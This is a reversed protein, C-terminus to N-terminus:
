RPQRPYDTLRRYQSSSGNDISVFLDNLDTSSDAISAPFVALTEHVSAEDSQSKLDALLSKRCLRLLKTVRDGSIGCMRLGTAALMRFDLWANAEKIYQLDLLQKRRADDLTEDPPLNIQALGTIGPKISLRDYYGDIEEALREAIQPREPRPGVLVMEGRAVNILQPLEDLHVKRLFRGLPTIRPDQKVCWRAVGDAEADLRMTRIKLIEYCKRNHGLRVQRYLAPGKSTLKVLLCVILIVPAAPLLLLCGLIREFIYKRRLYRERSLQGGSQSSQCGSLHAVNRDGGTDTDAEVTALQETESTM